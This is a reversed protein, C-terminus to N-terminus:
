KVEKKTNGKVLYMTMKPDFAKMVKVVTPDDDYYTTVGLEKSKKAKFVGARIPDTSSDPNYIIPVDEYGKPLKIPDSKPRNTIIIGDKSLWGESATGDWDYGVM